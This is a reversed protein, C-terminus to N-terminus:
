DCGYHQECSRQQRRRLACTGPRRQYSGSLTVDAYAAPAVFAAGVALAILTRKM